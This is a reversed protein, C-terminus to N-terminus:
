SSCYYYLNRLVKTCVVIHSAIHKEKLLFPPNQDILKKSFGFENRGFGRRYSLSTSRSRVRM